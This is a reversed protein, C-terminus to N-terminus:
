RQQVHERDHEELAACWKEVEAHAIESEMLAAYFEGSTSIKMKEVTRSFSHVASEWREIIRAREDDM